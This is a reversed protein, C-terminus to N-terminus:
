GGCISDAQHPDGNFGTIFARNREDAQVWEKRMCVPLLLPLLLLFFCIYDM